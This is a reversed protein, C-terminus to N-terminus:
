QMYIMCWANPATHGWLGMIIKMQVYQKGDLERHIFKLSKSNFQISTQELM